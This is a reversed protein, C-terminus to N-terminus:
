ANGKWWEITDRLGEVLTYAPTWGTSLLRRNDSLVHQPDAPDDPYAGFLIQSSSGTLGSVTEALEKLTVARGSGVNVPGTLESRAASWIASAVDDVHLYDRVRDGSTLKVTEGKMMSRILTPVLRRGNEGPGYIYFVRPWVVQMSVLASYRELITHLALKCAAYLTQPRTPAEESLASRGMDYEFGTGIGVFRKCGSDALHRALKLSAGVLDLNEPSKLYIGPTTIWALHICMEPHIRRVADSWSDPVLLDGPVIHCTDPM